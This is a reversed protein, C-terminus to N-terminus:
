AALEDERSAEWARGMHFDGLRRNVIIVAVVILLALFYFFEGYPIGFPTPPRSIPTIGKPGNTFNIPKTVTNPRSRFANRWGLTASSPAHRPLRRAAYPGRPRAPHGPGGRPRARRVAVRLVVLRGAPLGRRRLHHQRAALRLHGVLLRCGRFLGRLGSRAARSAGRRHQPRAGARRLHRGPDRGRPLLQQLVRHGADPRPARDGPAGMALTRPHAGQLRVAALGPVPPVGPGLPPVHRRRAGVAGP